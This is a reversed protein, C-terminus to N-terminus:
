QLAAKGASNPEDVTLEAGDETGTYSSDGLARLALTEKIAWEKWKEYAKEELQEGVEVPGLGFYAGVALSEERAVRAEVEKQHRFRYLEKRAMDYAAANSMATHQLLWQWRQIVAEGNIPRNGQVEMVEKWEVYDRGFEDRTDTKPQRLSYDLPVSWDYRERDRGDNELVVRPRALEWPHDNYYEWRLQDEAYKLSLPQFLRSSKRSARSPTNPRQLPPRTLRTAPPTNAIPHYWPPPAPIRHAHLLQTARKHVNQAAFSYRGMHNSIQSM